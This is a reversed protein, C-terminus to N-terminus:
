GAIKFFCCTLPGFIGRIELVVKAGPENVSLQAPGDPLVNPSVVLLVACARLADAASPVTM